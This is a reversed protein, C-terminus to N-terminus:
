VYHGKDLVGPNSSPLLLFLELDNKRWLSLELGSHSDRSWTLFFFFFLSSFSFFLLLFHHPFPLPFFLFLFFFADISPSCINPPSLTHPQKFSPLYLTNIFMSTPSYEFPLYQYGHLVKPAKIPFWVHPYLM